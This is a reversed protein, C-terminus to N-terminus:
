MLKGVLFVAGVHWRCEAYKDPNAEFHKTKADNVCLLRQKDVADPLVRIEVSHEIQPDLGSGIELLALRHYTCYQDFRVARSKAGDLTIEVMGSDPGIIDYISATSGKFRFSLTAGAEGEWVSPVRDGFGEHMNDRLEGNRLMTWGGERKLKDVSLMAATELNNEDLPEPLAHAEPIGSSEKIAPLSRILAETYLRHGTNKYPHTGDASFPIKGDPTLPLPADLDLGSGSVRTIEVGPTKFLLRGEKELRVVELGLHISPIDYHRAVQEMTSASRPFKGAHLDPLHPTNLTYVFCIDCAPYRTWTKRVIGEIARRIREPAQGGDNVAFEVFLLDPQHPIVDNDMRFVGVMSGTGGIAAHIESIDAQPYLRRFYEMSQVRWGDGATISGGFYAVRVREGNELKSFLNPLGNRPACEIADVLETTSETAM